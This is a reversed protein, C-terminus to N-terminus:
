DGGRPAGSIFHRRQLPPSNARIDAHHRECLDSPRLTQDFHLGDHGGGRQVLSRSTNERQGKVGFGGAAPRATLSSSM